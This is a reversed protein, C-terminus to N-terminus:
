RSPICDRVPASPSAKPFHDLLDNFHIIKDRISYRVLHIGASKIASQKERSIGHPVVLIQRRAPNTTSHLALQGVGTYLSQWSYTPKIEIEALPKHPPGVFLDRQQDKGVSYGGAQLCQSLRNCVLGHERRIEYTEAYRQGEGDEECEKFPGRKQEAPRRSPCGEKFDRIEWVFQAIDDLLDPHNARAVPFVSFPKGGDRHVLAPLRTTWKLYESKSIGPRGGGVRGTHCIWLKGNEDKALCGATNKATKKVAPNIQVVMSINTTNEPLPLVGFICWLRGDIEGGKNTWIGLDDRVFVKDPYSGARTGMTRQEVRAGSRMKAEIQKWVKRVISQDTVQTLM